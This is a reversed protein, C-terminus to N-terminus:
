IRSLIKWVGLLEAVAVFEMFLSEKFLVTKAAWFFYLKVL